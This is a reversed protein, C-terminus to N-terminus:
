DRMWRFRGVVAGFPLWRKHCLTELLLQSPPIRRVGRLEAIALGHTARRLIRVVVQPILDLLAFRLEFGFHPASFTMM